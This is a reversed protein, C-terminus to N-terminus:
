PVVEFIADDPLALVEQGAAALQDRPVDRYRTIFSPAPRLTISQGSSKRRYTTRTDASEANELALNLKGLSAGTAAAAGDAVCAYQVQKPTYHVVELDFSGRELGLKTLAFSGMRYGAVVWPGAGGHILTVADLPASRTAPPAAHHVPAEQAPACGLFFLSGAVAAARIM